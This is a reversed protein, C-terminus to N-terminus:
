IYIYIYLSLSPYIYIYIPIQILLLDQALGPVPALLDPVNNKVKM